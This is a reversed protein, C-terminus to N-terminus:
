SDAKHFIARQFILVTPSTRQSSALDISSINMLLNVTKSWLRPPKLVWHSELYHNSFLKGATLGIILLINDRTIIVMPQGQLEYAWASVSCVTSIKFDFEYYKNNLRFPLSFLSLTVNLPAQPKQNVKMQIFSFEHSNCLSVCCFAVTPLLPILARM